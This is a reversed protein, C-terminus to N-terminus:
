RVMMALVSGAAVILILAVLLYIERMITVRKLELMAGIHNEFVLVNWLRHIPLSSFARIHSITNLSTM